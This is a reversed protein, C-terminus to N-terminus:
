RGMACIVLGQFALFDYCTEPLPWRALLKVRDPRAAVTERERDLLATFCSGDGTRPLDCARPSCEKAMARTERAARLM